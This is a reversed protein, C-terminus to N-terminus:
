PVGARFVPFAPSLLPASPSSFCLFLSLFAWCCGCVPYDLGPPPRAFLSRVLVLWLFLHPAGWHARSALGGSGALFLVRVCVRPVQAHRGRVWFPLHQHGCSAAGAYRGLGGDFSPRYPFGSADTELDVCASGSCRECGLVSAPPVQRPCGWRPAGFPYSASRAWRGQRPLPWRCACHARNTAPSSTGRTAMWYRRPRCGGHHPFAGRGRPLRGSCRSHASWVLRPAGVRPWSARGLPVSGAVVVALLCTGLWLLWRTGCVWSTRVVCSSGRCSFLHWSCGPARARVGCGCGTPLSGQGCTGFSSCDPTPSRVVGSAGCVPLLRGGRPSKHRGWLVCLWSALAGATPDTVPGWARVGRVCLWHTTPGPLVDWLVLQRPQSLARGRVGRLWALPAGEPHGRAATVSRLALECSRARHPQHRTGVGAGGAVVALPYHARAARGLLLATLPPLAGSGPRGVCLCSAGGGPPEQTPGVARLALECSSGRHPQHRTGVGAGGAGVALPYHAGAARRLLRATPPPLAGSGPRGEGM